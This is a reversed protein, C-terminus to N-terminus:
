ARNGVERAALAGNAAALMTSISIGYLTVAMITAPLLRTYATADIEAPELARKKALDLTENLAGVVDEWHWAGDGTAPTVVLIAQAPENDSRAFNFTIGTERSTAPVVETWEDLLLGCQRAGPDFPTAYHATYLLRDGAPRDKEPFQMAMWPEGALYPLQAPTFAPATGGFAEALTGALEFSRLMPRVRAAGCLWEAVPRDIGAEATLHRLLTGGPAADALASAWEGGLGGDVTFEPVLKFSDGLLASAAAQLAQAQAPSSAAADFADLQAQTASLREDIAAKHGSLSTLLDQAFAVARDELADVDWPVPDFDSVPLLAQVAALADSFRTYGTATVARFADLREAFAKRRPDLDSRLTAPLPPLPELATAILAEATQLAGFRADAPTAPPLADYAAILADYDALRAEWRAALARVQAMLDAFAARRWEFAFGWGAQPLGFPAAEALLAVAQNIFGDIGSVIAARNAVPDALLPKLAALFAALEASVGDLQAKPVGVRARDAFVAADQAQRARGHPMADTAQLPRAGEMLRRLQRILASAEFLSLKGEAPANRYRIQPAADPRPAFRGLVYGLIMDDLEAMAQVDDPKVLALLDIPRVKLDALTVPESRAAGSLPDNWDVTVGVDGLPPLLTELWRDVAPEATARPTAQAPAALGPELHVAVRHTLGVGASPTQVVEPDPPFGANGYADVTAAVRDFNGQVAQHVGEALALDAIADYVDLIRNAEADIAQREAGTAAPLGAAGFPYGANGSRIQEALKRGDLVNRAEIAEIPVDAPTQTSALSDAILPFAKRLPFIFKDVEALGYADHLGREFRYGLLAGISQGNRVGELVSLAARVRDSSLNVSLAEPSEASANALYGSRLVAATRAHTLSPAHIYGGNGPDHMPAPTGAFTGELDAPVEAPELRATSPRLDEVWAYAGLHVGGTEKRADAARLAQLQLNALGLLWADFRYSCVDVHEALLRELAATPVEALAALAALQDALGESEPLSLNRTIYDSVLLTPDGTIRPESKYLAAYRSESASATEDVHIFAPEPKMAALQAASLFGASKHLEYSTDYYGLLLAHRLLLYLLAQPSSDGIFGREAVLADMSSGAADILWHIYNRREPAYPRIPGTESLPADDILESIQGADSMFALGLIDPQAGEAGLRALLQEGAAETGRDRLAQWFKPGLGWLNVINYLETLSESYRWHFEVSAPQLGVVDLLTQHPDGLKGVHAAAASMTTWDADVARLLALLKWPFSESGGLARSSRKERGPAIWAIRSFATTPLIGYPQHGIRLAPVAGRGSVFNTFFWRTQSVTEDGFVPALMKDMWYGLTAPWLARQMARAELQDTGGAGQVGDLLAPEIGLAEAVWQGDRKATPDSTSKFLPADRRDEFSQDADDLPSYGAPNESTNHTPTGQRVLALGSRGTQHHHLLEELAVKGDAASASMQIGLVLLRDFGTQAQEATLDIALGMGAEQAREFDVLWKLQDPVFLGKEDPHISADPDASPDPGVYLPTTVVGGIAELVQEGGQYGLVIFREPFQKVQPAQSWSFQKPPPDTGLVVFAVSCAVQPKTAPPAPAEGLNFPVYGAIMEAARSAGVAAELTSAAARQAEAEGDALWVAQWYAGIAASEAADLPTPTAIVLIQDFPQLKKPPQTASTPTYADLIFGARGSGHAAVLERWAAREADEVGGAAWIRQWYVKANALEDNSLTPEFTDVSCDDPYIRVWLQHRPSDTTGVNAFRTEVRVPFLTLPADDSLEGLSARPDTFEAFAALAAGAAQRAGEARQAAAEAEDTAEQAQAELDRLRRATAPDNRDAGATPQAAAETLSRQAQVAQWATLQAADRAARAATLDSQKTDFDSM